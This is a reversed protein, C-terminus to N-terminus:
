ETVETVETAGGPMFKMAKVVRYDGSANLTAIGYIFYDSGSLLACVYPIDIKAMQEDYYKRAQADNEALSVGDFSVLNNYDVHSIFYEQLAQWETAGMTSHLYGLCGITYTTTVKDKCGGFCLSLAAIAVFVIKKM